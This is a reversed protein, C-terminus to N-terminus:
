SGVLDLRIREYKSRLLALFSYGEAVRELDTRDVVVIVMGRDQYVKLQEREAHKGKGAGSIGRTAFLIGFRAKMSDLVRAFKAVTTFDAAKNWDKCECVFYRGIESRFDLDLGEISCIVDYDTSLSRKRAATRCGPICGLLYEALTELAQGYSSGLKCILMRAYIENVRYVSAENPGPFETMWDLDMNQLIWEPYACLDVDRVAIELACQAYRMIESDPMGYQLKLRSGVGSQNIIEIPGYTIADECLTLMLFRKAIARYGLFHYCDACRVLCHGKHTRRFEMQWRLMQRYNFEHFIMADHFRGARQFLIGLRDVLVFGPSDQEHFDDVGSFRDEAVPLLSAPSSVRDVQWVLDLCAMENLEQRIDLNPVHRQTPVLTYTQSM